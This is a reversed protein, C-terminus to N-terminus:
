KKELKSLISEYSKIRCKIHEVPNYKHSYEFEDSLIELETKLVKLAAVYDVMIEALDLTNTDM